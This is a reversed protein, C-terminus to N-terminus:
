TNQYIYVRKSRTLNVTPGNFFLFNMPMSFTVSMDKYTGDAADTVTPASFTGVGVGFKKDNIRTKIQDNTPAPFITAYRAGEGLAHQMGASAQFAIGIQFIGWLFLALIPVAIAMEIAAAGREDHRINFLRTM